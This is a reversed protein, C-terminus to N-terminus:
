QTVTKNQNSIDTNTTSINEDENESPAYKGVGAIEDAQDATIWGADVYVDLQSRDTYYGWAWQVKLIEYWSMM